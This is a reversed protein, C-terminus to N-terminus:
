WRLSIELAIFRCRSQLAAAHLEPELFIRVARYELEHTLHTHTVSYLATKKKRVALKKEQFEHHCSCDFPIPACRHSPLM